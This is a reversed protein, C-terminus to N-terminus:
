SPLRWAVWSGILIALVTVCVLLGRLTLQRPREEAPVTAWFPLILAAVGLVLALNFAPDLRLHRVQRDYQWRPSPGWPTGPGRVVPAAGRSPRRVSIFERYVSGGSDDVASWLFLLAIWTTTVLLLAKLWRRSAFAMWLVLLQALLLALTAPWDYFMLVWVDTTGDSHHRLPRGFVWTLQQVLLAVLALMEAGVALVLLDCRKWLAGM